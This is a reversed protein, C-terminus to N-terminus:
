FILMTVHCLGLNKMNQYRTWLGKWRYIHSPSVICKQFDQLIGVNTHGLSSDGEGDDRLLEDEDYDEYDYLDNVKNSLQNLRKETKSQDSKMGQLFSMVDNLSIQKEGEQDVDPRNPDASDLHTSNTNDHSKDRKENKGSGSGTSRVPSKSKDKRPPSTSTRSKSSSISSEKKDTQKSSKRTCQVKREWIRLNLFKERRM